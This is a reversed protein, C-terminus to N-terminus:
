NGRLYLFSQSFLFKSLRVKSAFTDPLSTGLAVVTIATISDELGVACGFLMALDVSCVWLVDFYLMFVYKMFCPLIYTNNTFVIGQILATVIGIDILAIFFTPWGHYYSSPPVTAFFLQLLSSINLPQLSCM